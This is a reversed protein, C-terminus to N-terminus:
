FNIDPNDIISKLKADVESLSADAKKAKPAAKEEVVTAKTEEPKAARVVPAGPKRRVPKSEEEKAAEAQREAQMEAFTKPQYATPLTVIMHRLVRNDLKLTNDVENIASPILEFDYVAYYGADHKKIIYALDRVGWVDEFYIVGKSKEATILKKIEDLAENIANTGLDPNIIVMLEYKKADQELVAKKVNKEKM